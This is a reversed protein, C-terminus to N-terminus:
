ADCRSTTAPVQVVVSTAPIRLTRGKKLMRNYDYLLKTDSSSGLYLVCDGSGIGLEESTRGGTPYITATEARRLLFPIGFLSRPHVPHGSRAHRAASSADTALLYFIVAIAILTAVPILRALWVPKVLIKLLRSPWGPSTLWILGTYVDRWLDGWPPRARVSARRRVLRWALTEEPGGPILEGIQRLVEPATFSIVIYAVGIVTLTLFAFAILLILVLLVLASQAITEKYGLGAEEPTAGFHGYFIAYGVRVIGFLCVGIITLAPLPNAVAYRLLRRM